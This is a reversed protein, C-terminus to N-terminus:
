WNGDEEFREELGGNFFYTVHAYKETKRHSVAQTRAVEGPHKLESLCVPLELEYQTFTV